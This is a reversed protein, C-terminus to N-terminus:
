RRRVFTATVTRAADARVTCGGSGRCAGSWAAFRWGAAAVARLRVTSEYTISARCTTRCALGGAVRGRGRVRVTLPYAAAGFVARVTKPGDMRVSCTAGDAACGEWRHLTRAGSSLAELEVATGSEWGIACAPPCAIGPLDSEVRDGGGAGVLAVTLPHEPLDLQRLWWSDQLDFWPGGHAYYDDRGADLVYDGLANSRGFPALIDVASDCVHGDDGPCPHPPRGGGSPGPLAGLVHLLEHVATVAAYDGNGLSGCPGRARLWVVGVSTSGGFDPAGSATGCIDDPEVPGDYYVLYKKAFDGFGSAGLDRRLAGFRTTTPAYATAAAPLRALTLDLTGLENECAGPFRFLDFRPQRSPDNARWWRVIHELDTVLKPAAEAFREGGDAPIAYVVHVQPGSVAEPLRDSAALDNGCWGAARAAGPAAAAAAVALVLGLTIRRGWM